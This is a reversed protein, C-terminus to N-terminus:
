NNKLNELNNQANERYNGNPDIKLYEEYYRLAEEKNGLERYIEGLMYLPNSFGPDMEIAKKYGAIAEDYREMRFLCESRSDYANSNEPELEIYRNFCELAKDYREMGLYAYGVLNFISGSEPDMELYKEFAKISNETQGLRQYAFGLGYYSNEDDAEEAAVTFYEVALQNLRARLLTFGLQQYAGYNQPDEAIDDKLTLVEACFDIIRQADNEMSNDPYRDMFDHLEDIGADFDGGTYTEAVIEGFEGFKEFATGAFESRVSRSIELAEAFRGGNFNQVAERLKRVAEWPFDEGVFGWKNEFVSQAANMGPYTELVQIYTKRALETQGSAEYTEALHLMASARDDGHPIYNLVKSYSEIKVDDDQIGDISEACARAMRNIWDESMIYNENVASQMGLAYYEVAQVKDGKGASIEALRRYSEATWRTDPYKKILNKFDKKARIEDKLEVLKINAANFLAAPALYHTSNAAAFNEYESVAEQFKGQELLYGAKEFLNGSSVNIFIVLLFLIVSLKKM